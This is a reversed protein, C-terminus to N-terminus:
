PAYDRLRQRLAARARSLRSKVTGKPCGLVDAMEADTLGELELLVITRADESLSMLASEIEEAVLKRLRDLELDGRLWQDATAQDTQPIAAVDLGSTVPDNRRRRYGSIFTNRLIRFMWAKLNTGPTFKAAAALARTYTEQVLDEADATNGTLYRALNYLADAYALAERGLSGSDHTVGHSYGWATAVM